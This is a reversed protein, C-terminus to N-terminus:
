YSLKYTTVFADGEKYDEPKGDCYYSFQCSHLDIRGSPYFKTQRVVTCITSPFARSLVRNLIVEAIARQGEESESRGEFYLAESLCDVQEPAVNDNSTVGSISPVLLLLFLFNKM